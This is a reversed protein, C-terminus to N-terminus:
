RLVELWADLGIPHRESRLQTTLEDESNLPAPGLVRDKARADPDRVIDYAARILRFREPERDPPHLKSLELYRARVQEDTADDDLGLYAFPDATVEADNSM